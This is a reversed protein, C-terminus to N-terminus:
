LWALVEELIEIRKKLERGRAHAVETTSKNVNAVDRRVRKLRQELMPRLLPHRQGVLLPGVTLFRPDLEFDQRKEEAVVIEYFNNNEQAIDEQIIAWGHGVLWSRVLGTDRMAQLILRTGPGLNKHGQALIDCIAEGGMGAIIITDVKDKPDIVSLGYGLRLDVARVANFLELTETAVQLPGKKSDSVIINAALHNALLYLPIYAHDSGIDAVSSGPPIKDAIAQLRPTLRVAM